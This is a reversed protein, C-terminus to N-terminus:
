LIAAVLHIRTESSSNLATHYKTTDTMWWENEPIHMVEDEIIMMCGTKTKIPYHLRPSTDDHWSMCIHPPMKMLRIRGVSFNEKLTNYVEEFVTNNFVSVLRTFDLETLQPNRDPVTQSETGDKNQTITINEWDKTLSGTGYVFDDPGTETTNLCIQNMSSWYLRGDSFMNKMEDYLNFRPLEIRTFNKL